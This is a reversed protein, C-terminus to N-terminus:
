SHSALQHAAFITAQCGTILAGGHTIRTNDFAAADLANKIQIALRDRVVELSKLAQVVGLYAADGASTSNIANTDAALTFAGFEGVSSNLQKYCEGLQTAGGARLAQNPDSVVQSIVRGDHVYGDKLGTLYMITPRIDTEDIWPGTLQTQFVEIQGSNPGASNPGAGPANGDLSLHKVGPGVLGLYNTNIEAAYAGHDYGFQINQTV